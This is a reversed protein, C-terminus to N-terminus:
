FMRRWEHQVRRKQEVVFRKEACEDATFKKETRLVHFIEKVLQVFCDRLPGAVLLLRGGRAAVVGPSAVPSPPTNGEKCYDRGLRQLARLLGHRRRLALSARAGGAAATM